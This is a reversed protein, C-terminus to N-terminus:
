GATVAKKGAKRKIVEDKYKIGSGKYPEPKRKLRIDAAIRGVLEKDTGAVTIVSKEVRFTIGEPAKVIIPHSYGLNLELDRGKVSARYGVGQFELCKEFEKSAGMVMNSLLARYLGWMALKKKDNTKDGEKPKLNLLNDKIDLELFDPLDRSFEGKPGKVSISSGSIKVDVKDPIKIPKKGIKSM